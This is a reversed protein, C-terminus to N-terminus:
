VSQEWPRFFHSSSTDTMLASIIRSPVDHWSGATCVLLRHVPTFFVSNSKQIPCKPHWTDKPLLFFPLHSPCYGPWCHWVLAWLVAGGRGLANERWSWYSKLSVVIGSHGLSRLKIPDMRKSIKIVLLIDGSMSRGVRREILTKFMRETVQQVGPM